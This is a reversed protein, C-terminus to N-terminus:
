ERLGWLADKSRCRAYNKRQLSLIQFKWFFCVVRKPTLVASCRQYGRDLKHLFSSYQGELGMPFSRGTHHKWLDKYHTRANMLSLHSWLVPWLHNIPYCECQLFWRPEQAPPPPTWASSHLGSQSLWPKSSMARINKEMGYLLYILPISLRVCPCIPHRSWWLLM